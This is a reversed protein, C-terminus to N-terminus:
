RDGTVHDDYHANLVILALLMTVDVVRDHVDQLHHATSTSWKLVLLTACYEHALLRTLVEVLLEKCLTQGDLRVQRCMHQVVVEERLNRDLCDFVLLVGHNTGRNEKNVSSHECCQAPYKSM